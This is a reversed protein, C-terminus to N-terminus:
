KGTLYSLAQSIDGQIQLSQDFVTVEEIGVNECVEQFKDNLASVKSEYLSSPITFGGVKCQDVEVRMAENLTITCSVTEGNLLGVASELTPNNELHILSSIKNDLVFTFEMQNNENFNIQLDTIQDGVLQHVWSNIQDQRLILQDFVQSDATQVPEAIQSSKPLIVRQFATYGLGAIMMFMFLTVIKRM